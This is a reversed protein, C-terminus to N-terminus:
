NIKAKFCELLNQNDHMWEWIEKSKESDLDKLTNANYLLGKDSCKISHGQKSYFLTQNVYLDRITQIFTKLDNMNKKIEFVVEVVKRSRKKETFKVTIDTYKNIEKEAKQLIGQKFKSYVKYSKPVQMMDQLEEVNFTRLGFDLREKLLMYLRRSYSGKIQLLHRTDVLVFQKLDLLYPKLRKDFSCLIEGYDYSFYSFWTFLEWREDDKKVELVKSMLSHATRRLEASDIKVGTKYELEQKTFFYDKFDEDDKDIASLLMMILDSESKSLSYRANVLKPSERFYNRNTLDNM